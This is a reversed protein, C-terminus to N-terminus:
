HPGNPNGITSPTFTTHPTPSKVAAKHRAVAADHAARAAEQKAKAAEFAAERQQEMSEMQNFAPDTPQGKAKRSQQDKYWKMYAQQQKMMAQQQQAMLKRQLLQQYAYPNGGAQRFEPSLAPNYVPGYATSAWPSANRYRSGGRGAEATRPSTVLITLLVVGVVQPFVMRYRM